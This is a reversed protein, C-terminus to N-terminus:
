ASLRGTFDLNQPADPLPPRADTTPVDEGVPEVVLEDVTVTGVGELLVGFAIAAAHSPVDLVVAYSKRPADGSIARARMNDFALVEGHPGDVRMWLGSWGQVGDARLNGAFRVRAGRLAVPRFVQMLTGFGRPAVVTSRLVAANTPTDSVVAVAYDSPSSGALMWGEPTM